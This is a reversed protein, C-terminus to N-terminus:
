AEESLKCNHWPQLWLRGIRVLRHHRGCRVCAEYHGQGAPAAGKPSGHRELLEDVTIRANM